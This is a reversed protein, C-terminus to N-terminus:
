WGARKVAEVRPDPVIPRRSRCNQRGRMGGSGRGEPGISWGDDHKSGALNQAVKGPAADETASGAANSAQGGNGVGRKVALHASGQM